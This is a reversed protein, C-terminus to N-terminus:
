RRRSPSSQVQPKRCRVRRWQCAWTKAMVAATAWNRTAEAAGQRRWTAWISWAVLNIAMELAAGDEDLLAIQDHLADPDVSQAFELLISHIMGADFGLISAQQNVLCEQVFLVFLCAAFKTSEVQSSLLTKRQVQLLMLRGTTYELASTSLAKGSPPNASVYERILASISSSQAAGEDGMSFFPQLCFLTKCFERDRDGALVSATACVCLSDGSKTPRSRRCIACSSRRCRM